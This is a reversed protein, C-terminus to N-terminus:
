CAAIFKRPCRYRAAVYEIIISLVCCGCVHQLERRYNLLDQREQRPGHTFEEGSKSGAGRRKGFGKIGEGIKEWLV